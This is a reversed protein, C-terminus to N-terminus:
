ISSVPKQATFIWYQLYTGPTDECLQTFDALMAEYEEESSVLGFGGEKMVLLKIGELSGITVDRSLDGQEGAWSGLPMERKQIAVNVFGAEELWNQLRDVVDLVIHRVDLLLKDRVAMIKHYTIAALPSFFLEKPEFLQVWGGPALVRYMESVAVKWQEAQLAFILLRQNILTVTNTWDDPLCTISLPMFSANPPISMPMPWMRSSIDIGRLVVTSPVEKALSLLWHGLYKNTSQSRACTKLIGSGTGSEVVIDGKKLTIPAWILKNEFTLNIM